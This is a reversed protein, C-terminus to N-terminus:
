ESSRTKIQMIEVRRRRGSWGVASRSDVAGAGSTDLSPIQQGWYIEPHELYKGEAIRERLRQCKHSSLGIIFLDFIRGFLPLKSVVGERKVSLDLELDALSGLPSCFAALQRVALERRDGCREVTYTCLYEM